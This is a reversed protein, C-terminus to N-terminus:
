LLGLYVIGPDEMWHNPCFWSESLFLRDLEIDYLVLYSAEQDIMTERVREFLGRKENEGRMGIRTLGLM